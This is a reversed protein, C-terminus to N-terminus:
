STVYTPLFPDYGIFSYRGTKPNTDASDLFFSKPNSHTHHFINMLDTGPDLENVILKKKTRILINKM